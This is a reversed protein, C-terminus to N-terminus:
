VVHQYGSLSLLYSIKGSKDRRVCWLLDIPSHEIFRSLISRECKQIHRTLFNFYNQLFSKKKKYLVYTKKSEGPKRQPLAQVLDELLFGSSSTIGRAKHVDIKEVKLNSWEIKIKINILITTKNGM